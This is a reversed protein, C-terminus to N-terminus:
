EPIAAESAVNFKRPRVRAADPEPVSLCYPFRLGILLTRQWVAEMMGGCDRRMQSTREWVSMALRKRGQDRQPGSAAM